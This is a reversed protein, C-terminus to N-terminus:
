LLPKPRFARDILPSALSLVLLAALPGTAVTGYLQGAAALLGLLLAYVTRGPRSTPCSVGGGSGGGGTALFFVTFALPGAAIQYCAFTVMTQWSVGEARFAFWRYVAGGGGQSGSLFAGSSSASAAAGASGAQSVWEAGAAAPPTVVIPVPLCLFAVFAAALAFFPVRWDAGGRYLLLLGGLLTAALAGLGLPTPNGGLVLDELPPLRDRLMADLSLWAGDPSPTGHTYATLRSGAPETRFARAALGSGRPTEPMTTAWHFDYLGAFNGGVAGRTTPAGPVTDGAMPPPRADLVDGTFMHPRVLTSTATMHAPFLAMLLLATAAVPHLRAGVGGFLWSFFALILGAGVLLLWGGGTPGGPELAYTRALEAPVLMALLGGLYLAHTLHLNRGRQGVLRWLLTGVVSSALVVGFVALARWGYLISGAVLMPLLCPLLWGYLSSITIGCHTATPRVDARLSFPLPPDIPDPPVHSM